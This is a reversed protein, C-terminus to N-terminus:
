SWVVRERRGGRAFYRAMAEAGHRFVARGRGGAGRTWCCRGLRGRFAVLVWRM